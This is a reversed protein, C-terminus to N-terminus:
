TRAPSNRENINISNCWRTWVNLVTLHTATEINSNRDEEIVSSIERDDLHKEENSKDLLSPDINVLWESEEDESFYNLDDTM